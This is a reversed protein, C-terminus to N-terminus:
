RRRNDPSSDVEIVPTSGARWLAVGAVLAAVAVAVVLWWWNFHHGAVAVSDAVTDRVVQATDQLM